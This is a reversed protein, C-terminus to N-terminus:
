LSILLMEDLIFSSKYKVYVKETEEKIYKPYVKNFKDFYFQSSFYFTLQNYKFKIM